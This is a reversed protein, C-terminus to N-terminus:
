PHIAVSNPCFAPRPVRIIHDGVSGRTASADIYKENLIFTYFRGMANYMYPTFLPFAAGFASRLVSNAALVSAAYFLYM